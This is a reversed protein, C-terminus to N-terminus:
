MDDFKMMAQDWGDARTFLQLTMDKMIFCICLVEKNMKEM